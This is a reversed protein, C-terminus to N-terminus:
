WPKGAEIQADTMTLKERLLEATHEGHLPPLHRVTVKSGSLKIPAGVLTIDRGDRNRMKILKSTIMAQSVSSGARAKASDCNAPDIAM